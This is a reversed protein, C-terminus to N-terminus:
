KKNHRIQNLKVGTKKLYGILLILFSYLFVIILASYKYVVTELFMIQANDKPILTVALILLAVIYIIPSSNKVDFTKKNIKTIYSIIVSLYSLFTFIWVLIFEEQKTKKEM